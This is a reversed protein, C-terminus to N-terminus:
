RISNVGYKWVGFNLKTNHMHNAIRDFKNAVFILLLKTSVQLKNVIGWRFIGTLNLEFFEDFFPANSYSQSVASWIKQAWRRDRVNIEAQQITQDSRGQTLVPVTIWQWGQQSRTRIKNRNQFYNKEYQVSDLVVFVDAAAMKHFFGLWPFNEPQHITILM